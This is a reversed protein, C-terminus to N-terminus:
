KNDIYILSDLGDNGPVTAGIRQGNDYLYFTDNTTVVQYDKLRDNSQLIDGISTIHDINPYEPTVWTMAKAGIMLGFVFAISLLTFLKTKM